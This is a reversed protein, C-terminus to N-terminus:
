LQAQKLASAESKIDECLSSVESSFISIEKYLDGIPPRLTNTDLLFEFYKKQKGDFVEPNEATQYQVREKRDGRQIDSLIRQVAIEVSGGSIKQLTSHLVIKNSDMLFDDRIGSGFPLMYNFVERHLIEEVGADSQNLFASQMAIEGEFAMGMNLLECITPALSVAGPKSVFYKALEGVLNKGNIKATGLNLHSAQLGYLLGNKISSQGTVAQFTAGGIHLGTPWSPFLQQASYILSPYLLHTKATRVFRNEWHTILDAESVRKLVPLLPNTKFDPRVVARLKSGNMRSQKIVFPKFAQQVIEFGM